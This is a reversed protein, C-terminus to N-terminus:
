SMRREIAARVSERVRGPAEGSELPAPEPADSRRLLVVAVAILLIVGVVALVVLWGIV